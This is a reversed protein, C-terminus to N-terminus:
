ATTRAPAPASTPAAPSFAAPPATPAPAAAQRASERMRGRQLVVVAGLVLVAGAWQVAGLAEGFVALALLVTVVPESCSLIAAAGPGVRQLGVFFLAVGLVTAVGAIALLWGWAAASLGLDLAGAGAGVVALSVAAGTCVVASLLVPPLRDVVGDAVLIYATYTLAAGLGLGAGLPDLDGVGAGTLVLVLGAFVALLVGIRAPTLQERGLAAASLAVWAPYTYLVLSLLSADMRELAAFFLGAQTAYGVAGLGLATLVLGRGPRARLARRSAPLLLALAWFLLAGLTFRVALLTMVNAGEDFALKGFIALSGFAAASVLCALVGMGRM